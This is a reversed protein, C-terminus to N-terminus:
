CSQSKSGHFNKKHTVDLRNNLQSLGSGIMRTLGAMFLLSIGSTPKKILGYVNKISTILDEPSEKQRHPFDCEDILVISRTKTDTQTRFQENLAQVGERLFGSCSLDGQNKLSATFSDSLGAADLASKIEGRLDRVSSLGSMDLSVIPHMGMDLLERGKKLSAIKNKILAADYDQITPLPNFIADVFSLLSTKCFRRPFIVTIPIPDFDGQSENYCECLLNYVSESKDFFHDDDLLRAVRHSLDVPTLNIEDSLKFEYPSITEDTEFHSKLCIGNKLKGAVSKSCSGRSLM